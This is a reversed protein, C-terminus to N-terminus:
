GETKMAMEFQTYTKKVLRMMTKYRGSNSMLQTIENDLSVDNGDVGVPTTMPQYLEPKIGKLDFRRGPRELEAQLADEFKVDQRIYGPKRLNAINNAIAKQRLEYAQAATSALSVIDPTRPM